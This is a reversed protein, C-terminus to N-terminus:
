RRRRKSGNKSIMNKRRLIPSVDLMAISTVEVEYPLKLKIIDPKPTGSEERDYKWHTIFETPAHEKFVWTKVHEIALDRVRPDEFELAEISAVKKGDTKVKMIVHTKAVSLWPVAPIKLYEVIPTNSGRRSGSNRGGAKPFIVIEMNSSPALTATDGEFFDDFMDTPADPHLIEGKVFWWTTYFKAPAHKRFRWSYISELGIRVLEPANKTEFDIWTVSAAKEGDTEIRFGINEGYHGSRVRAPFEPIKLYEVQPRISCRDAGFNIPYEMVNSCLHRELYEPVYHIVITPQHGDDPKASQTASNKEGGQM